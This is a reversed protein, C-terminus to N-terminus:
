LAVVFGPLHSPCLLVCPCPKRSCLKGCGACFIVDYSMDNPIQTGCLQSLLNTECRSQLPDRFQFGGSVTHKQRYNSKILLLTRESPLNVSKWEGADVQEGDLAAKSVPRYPRRLPTVWLKATPDTPPSGRLSVM